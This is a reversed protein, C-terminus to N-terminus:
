LGFKSLATNSNGANEKSESQDKAVIEGPELKVTERDDDV